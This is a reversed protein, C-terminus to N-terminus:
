IQPIYQVRYIGMLESTNYEKVIISIFIAVMYKPVLSLALGITCVM